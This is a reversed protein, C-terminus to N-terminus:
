HIAALLTRAYDDLRALATPGDLDARGLAQYGAVWEHMYRMANSTIFLNWFDLDAAAAGRAREYRRTFEDAADVDFLISLDCRCTAVDRAPDGLHAMEWDIVGSLRERHWITNGPWYDGHVLNSRQAQEVPPWLARLTSWVEAELVDDRSPGRDVRPPRPLLFAVEATPVQHLEALADALQQLYSDLRKSALVSRGPLRSIVLTPAGFIAGEQDLLVPLPAPYGRRAFIDLLDFERSCVTPDDAWEDGYTRVVVDQLTGDPQRLRVAHVHSSVGGRMARVSVVAGGPALRDRLALVAARSPPKV